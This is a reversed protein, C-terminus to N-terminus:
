DDFEAEEDRRLFYNVAGWVALVLAVFSALRFALRIVKMGVCLLVMLGLGAGILWPLCQEVLLPWNKSFLELDLHARSTNLHAMGRLLQLLTFGLGAGVLVSALKPLAARVKWTGDLASLVAFLLALFRLPTM